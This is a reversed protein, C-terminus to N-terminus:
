ASGGHVRRPIAYASAQYTPAADSEPMELEARNSANVQEEAGVEVDSDNRVLGFGM